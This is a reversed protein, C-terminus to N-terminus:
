TTCSMKLTCSAPSCDFAPFRDAPCIIQKLFFSSYSIIDEETIYSYITFYVQLCFLLAVVYHM